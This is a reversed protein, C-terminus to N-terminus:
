KTAVFGIYKFLHRSLPMQKLLLENVVGVYRFREEKSFREDNILSRQGIYWHYTIEVKSFGIRTLTEQLQDGKFGGGTKGFEALDVVDKDIGWRELVVEDIYTIMEIERKVIPDYEGDRKLADVAEWCYYNPELDVYFKGGPKLAKYATKFTPEIDYLHHLVAYATAVDFSAPELTVAGTDGNLLTINAPGSRDVRDLMAQTADVGVIEKIHNKAIDIIFGMGCGLDLLRKANTDRFIEVLKSEVKQVNEPRYHPEDKYDDAAKTHLLINANIVAAQKNETTTM